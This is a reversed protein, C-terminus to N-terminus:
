TPRTGESAYAGISDPLRNDRERGSVSSTADSTVTCWDEILELLM